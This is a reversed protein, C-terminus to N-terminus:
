RWFRACNRILSILCSYKILSEGPNLAVFFRMFHLDFPDDGPAILSMSWEEWTPVVNQFDGELAVLSLLSSNYPYHNMYYKILQLLSIFTLM